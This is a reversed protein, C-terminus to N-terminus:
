LRQFRYLSLPTKARMVSPRAASAAPGFVTIISAVYRFACRLAVLKRDFFPFGAVLPATQDAAGPAAHVGLQM